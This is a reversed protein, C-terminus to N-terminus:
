SDRADSQINLIQSVVLKSLESIAAQVEYDGAERHGAWGSSSNSRLGTYESAAVKTKTSTALVKELDLQSLPRPEQLGIHLLFILLM